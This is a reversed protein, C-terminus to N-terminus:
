DPTVSQGQCRPYPSVDGLSVNLYFVCIIEFVDRKRGVPELKSTAWRTIFVSDFKYVTMTLYVVYFLLVCLCL